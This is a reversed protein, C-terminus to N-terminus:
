KIRGKLANLTVEYSDKEFPYSIEKYDKDILLEIIYKMFNPNKVLIPGLLHSGFLNNFRFGEYDNDNLNNDKFIYDFLKHDQGGDIVSCKNIFGVCEGFDKNNVIVDGTFRQDTFTTNIDIIGLGEQHNITKGFLELANGTALLVKNNDIYEKIQSQYKLIDNRVIELRKETGSGIFIFDYDLLNINDEISRKDIETNIGQDELHKKLVVVNGYDGYLNMLDYYWHLIKM